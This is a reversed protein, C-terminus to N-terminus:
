EGVNEVGMNRFENRIKELVTSQAFSHAKIVANRIAKSNSSGHCKFVMGNVGLIPTGGYEEADMQKFFRKLEEKVILASFKSFLTKSYVKRIGTTIYSGVGEILKLIVNGVFGDCVAVDVDGLPIQKGEINGIFNIDAENLLSYAQKVIETGKSEETGNNILGVRPKEINFVEKMYITGIKGFQVYNVPKCNTNLGADILM